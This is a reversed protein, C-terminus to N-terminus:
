LEFPEDTRGYAGARADSNRHTGDYPFANRHTAGYRNLNLNPNPNARGRRWWLSGVAAACGTLATRDM